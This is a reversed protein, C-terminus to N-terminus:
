CIGLLWGATHTCLLCRCSVGFCYCQVWVGFFVVCVFVRFLCECSAHVLRQPIGLELSLAVVEILM